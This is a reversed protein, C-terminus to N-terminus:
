SFVARHLSEGYDGNILQKTMVNKFIEVVKAPTETSRHEFLLADISLQDLCTAGGTVPDDEEFVVAVEGHFVAHQARDLMDLRILDDCPEITSAAIADANGRVGVLRDVVAIRRRDMFVLPAVTSRAKTSADLVM